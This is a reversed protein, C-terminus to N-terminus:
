HLMERNYSYSRSLEHAQRDTKNPSIHKDAFGFPMGFFFLDKSDDQLIHARSRLLRYLESRTPAACAHKDGAALWKRGACDEDVGM